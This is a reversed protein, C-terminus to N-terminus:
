TRKTMAGAGNHAQLAEDVNPWHGPHQKYWEVTRRLGEDFNVQPTWGLARIKEAKIDYSADNKFRDDVVELHDNVKGPAVGFYSLLATAVERVSKTSEVTAGINYAEGTTGKHLVLDFARAADEVFLFSRRSRGGGHLPLKQKRSLRYIFKPILKEPFQRPGYINNPRVVVIPLQSGFSSMYGRLLCEAGAKSASYPNGPMLDAQEDFITGNVNEGYVEDTSIHLFRKVGIEHAVKLLVATGIVNAESFQVPWTFSRDVHTQAALHMVTDIRHKEMISRVTSESTIDGKVFVWNAKSDIPELNARNSGESLNDLCVFFIEPHTQVMHILTNSGIFGAGGTFLV